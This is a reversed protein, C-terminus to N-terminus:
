PVDPPSSRGADLRRAADPYHRRGGGARGALVYLGATLFALAAWQTLLRPLDITYTAREVMYGFDEPPQYHRSATSGPNVRVFPLTPPGDTGAHM